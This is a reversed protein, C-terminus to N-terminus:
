LCAKLLDTRDGDGQRQKETGELIPHHETVFDEDLPREGCLKRTVRSPRSAVHEALPNAIWCHQYVVAM